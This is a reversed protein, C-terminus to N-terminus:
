TLMLHGCVWIRGLRNYAYNTVSGDQFLTIMFLHFNNEQIRTEILCGVTFKQDHVWQRVVNQKRPMNFDRMNWAFISTM